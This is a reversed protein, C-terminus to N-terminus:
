IFNSITAVMLLKLREVANNCLSARNIYLPFLITQYLMLELASKPIMAKIPFSVTTLNLDGSLFKRGIQKLMYKGVGRSM